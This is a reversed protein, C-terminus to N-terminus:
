LRKKKAKKPPSPPPFLDSLAPKVKSCDINKYPLFYNKYFFCLYRIFLTLTDASTIYIGSVMLLSKDAYIKM